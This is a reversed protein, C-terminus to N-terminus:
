NVPRVRRCRFRFKFPLQLSKKLSPYVTMGVGYGSVRATSGRAPMVRFPSEGEYAISGVSTGENASKDSGYSLRSRYKPKTLNACKPRTCLSM